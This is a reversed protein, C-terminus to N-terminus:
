VSFRLYSLREKVPDYDYPFRNDKYIHEHLFCVDKVQERSYETISPYGEGYQYHRLPFVNKFKTAHLYDVVFEELYYDGYEEQIKKYEPNSLIEDSFCMDYYSSYFGHKRHTIILNTDFPLDGNFRQRQGKVSEEDYQGIVINERAIDIWKEPLPKLLQMDLDTKITIEEKIPCISEFYKGCFPENLFGLVHKVIEEGTLVVINVGLCKLDRFTQDKVNEGNSLLAYIQLDKLWGGNKRWSRVNRVLEEEFYRLHTRNGFRVRKDSDIPLILAIDEVQM